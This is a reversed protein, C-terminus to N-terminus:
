NLTALPLCYNEWTDLVTQTFKMCNSEVILFNYLNYHTVRHFVM